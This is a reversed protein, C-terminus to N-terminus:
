RGGGSGFYQFKYEPIDINLNLRRSGFMFLAQGRKKQLLLEEESETLNYLDKTEKLNKGDTGMIFKYCPLDLIAQGYMRISEHLFDVVSHSIVGISAEYKRSRKEVNRLFVASQPVQPDLLLYCEDAILMVKENRDFSMQEWCWSLLNFYQAAKVKDSMNQLAATSLCICRSKPDITTHGNWLFKDSGYSIDHLLLQLKKLERIEEDDNSSEYISGIKKYLDEMIPFDTNKLAKIETDWFINFDNYLEILAKKLRASLIDDLSPLYMKFFVELSKMHLALDGMSVEENSYLRQEEDDDDVPAPRVQLPNVKGESGGGANIWDGKLKKTLDRYENEPDIFIIKTGMMYEALAIHKATASKGVGPVGLLSFNSNTRDGGRLWLDIIVLGGNSDRGLVYSYDTNDRHGASAFPFGGIFSSLPMLKGYAEDIDSNIGYAPSISKLGSEQIFTAARVKCKAVKCTAESSKSLKKFIDKDTSYPMVVTSVVGVSEDFEDMQIMMNTASDRARTARNKTLADGGMNLESNKIEIVRNLNDILISPDTNRFSICVHSSNINTIKSMWGIDPEQPYKIIGFVKAINDSIQLSTNEYNLGFPTILNLLPNNDGIVEQKLKKKIMVM